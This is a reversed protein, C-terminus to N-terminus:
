PSEIVENLVGKYNFFKNSNYVVILPVLPFVGLNRHNVSQAINEKM